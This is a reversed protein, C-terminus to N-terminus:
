TQDRCELIAQGELLSGVPVNLPAMCIPDNTFLSFLDPQQLSWRYLTHEKADNFRAFALLQNSNSDFALKTIVDHSTSFRMVLTATDRNYVYISATDGVYGRSNAGIALLKGPAPQAAVAEKSGRGFDLWLRQDERVVEATLEGEFEAVDFLRATRLNDRNTARRAWYDRVVREGADLSDQLVNLLTGDAANGPSTKPVALFSTDYLTMHAFGAYLLLKGDSSFSLRLTTDADNIGPETRAVVTGTSLDLLELLTSSGVALTRGDPSYALATVRGLTTMRAPVDDYSFVTDGRSAAFVRNLSGLALATGTNDFAIARAFDLRGQYRGAEEVILMDSRPGVFTTCNDGEDLQTGPAACGDTMDILLLPGNADGLAKKQGGVLLHHSRPRFTLASPTFSSTRVMSPAADFLGTATDKSWVAIGSASGIALRSASADFALGFLGKRLPVVLQQPKNRADTQDLRWILLTAGNRLALASGDASLALDIDEAYESLPPLKLSNFRGTKLDWLEMDGSGSIGALLSKESALRAPQLPRYAVPRFPTANARSLIGILNGYENDFLDFLPENDADQEDPQVQSAGYGQFGLVRASTLAADFYRRDDLFQQAQEMLTQGNAHRAREYQEQAIRTQEQARRAERKAVQAQFISIIAAAVLAVAVGAFVMRRRRQNREKLAVSAAAFERETQNLQAQQELLQPLRPDDHWLYPDASASQSQRKWDSAARWAARILSQSHSAALWDQLREWAVVLTDHAPEIFDGDSVLLRAETFTEIMRQVDAGHQDAFVLESRHVRRRTLGAETSVM